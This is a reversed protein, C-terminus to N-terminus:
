EKIGHTKVWLDYAKSYEGEYAPGEGSLAHVRVFAYLTIQKPLHFAIWWYIKHLYKKM